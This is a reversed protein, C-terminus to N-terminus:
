RRQLATLIIERRQGEEVHYVVHPRGQPDVAMAGARLIRQTDVGGAALVEASEATAPLTVARGDSRTWSKGCDPSVLYAVTQLRGYGQRDTREHFRCALHLTCHDPGWALSEQFHAYGRHRSQLIAGECRWPEGPSRKWLEVQWPRDPFRRRATLYLTDDAGCVLTPYTM